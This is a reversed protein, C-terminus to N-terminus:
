FTNILRYLLAIGPFTNKNHAVLDITQNKLEILSKGNLNVWILYVVFLVITSIIDKLTIRSKWVTYLPIIKMIIFMVVFLILYIPKTKYYLMLLIVCMNEIVGVIIAFKPNYGKVINFMYLLYWAFIWYSFFFDPRNM